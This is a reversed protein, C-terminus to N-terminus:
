DGRRDEGNWRSNRRITQIMNIITLLLVLGAGGAILGKWLNTDFWMPSGVAAGTAVGATILQAKVQAVGSIAVDTKTQM